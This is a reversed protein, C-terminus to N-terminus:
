QLIRESIETLDPLTSLFPEEFMQNYAIDDMSKMFTVFDETSSFDKLNIFCKRNIANDKGLDGWYIPVTGTIYAQLLKETVYGPYLDNEFCITYKYRKAVKMKNTVIRGTIRGYVDVKGIRNLINIGQLRVQHPNGIIACAFATKEGQRLTRKKLLDDAQITVGDGEFGNPKFLGILMYWTPLYLNTGNFDFQDYSLTLDLDDQIPPRINEMTFWIRKKSNKTKPNYIKPYIENSDRDGAISKQILGLVKLKFTSSRPKVVGIIEIDCYQNPDSIIVVKFGAAELLETFFKKHIKTDNDWWVFRLTIKDSM